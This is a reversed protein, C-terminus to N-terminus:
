SGRRVWAWTAYCCAQEGPHFTDGIQLVPRVSKRNDTQTVQEEVITVVLSLLAIVVACTDM